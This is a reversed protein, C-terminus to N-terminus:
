GSTYTSLPRNCRYRRPCRPCHTAAGRGPNMVGLQVAVLDNQNVLEIQTTHRM